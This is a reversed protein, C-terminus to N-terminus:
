ENLFTKCVKDRSKQRAKKKDEGIDQRVGLLERKDRSVYKM